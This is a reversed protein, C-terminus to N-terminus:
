KGERQSRKRQDRKMAKRGRDTETRENLRQKRFTTPTIAWQQPRLYYTIRSIVM